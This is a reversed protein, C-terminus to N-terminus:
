QPPPPPSQNEVFSQNVPAEDRNIDMASDQMAIDTMMNQQPIDTDETAIREM